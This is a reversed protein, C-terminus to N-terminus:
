FKRWPARRKFSSFCVMKSKPKECKHKGQFIAAAAINLEATLGSAFTKNADFFGVGKMEKHTIDGAKQEIWVYFALRNPVDALTRDKYM